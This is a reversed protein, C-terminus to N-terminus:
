SLEAEGVLEPLPFETSFPHLEGGKYEDIVENVTLVYDGAPIARLYFNGTDVSSDLCQNGAITSPTTGDAFSIPTCQKGSVFSVVECLPDNTKRLEIEAGRFVADTADRIEGNVQAIPSDDLPYLAQIAAIDDPNLTAQDETALVSAMTPVFRSFEPDNAQNRGVAYVLDGLAESHDLGLLHGLEHVMVAAMSNVTLESGVDLLGNIYVGNFIIQASTIFDPDDDLGSISTINTLGLQRGSGGIGDGDNLIVSGETNDFAIVTQREWQLNNEAEIEESTDNIITEDVVLYDRYNDATIEEPLDGDYVFEINASAEWIAMAAQLLQLAQDHTLRGLGGADVLYHIEPIGDEDDDRSTDWRLPEGTSPHYYGTSGAYAFPTMVLMFVFLVASVVFKKM